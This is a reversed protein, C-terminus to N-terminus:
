LSVEIGSTGFVPATPLGVRVTVGACVFVSGRVGTYEGGITVRGTVGRVSVL